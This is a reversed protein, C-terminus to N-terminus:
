NNIAIIRYGAGPIEGFWVEGNGIMAGQYNRWIQKVDQGIVAQRVKQNFILNYNKIFEQKDAADEIPYKVLEAIAEKQEGAVMVQFESVFDMFAEPDAFGATAWSTAVGGDAFIKTEEKAAEKTEEEPKSNVSDSKPEISEPKPFDVTETPKKQDAIKQTEEIVAREEEQAAEKTEVPKEVQKETQEINSDNKQAVPVTKLNAIQTQYVYAGAGALAAAAIILIVLLAAFGNQKPEM